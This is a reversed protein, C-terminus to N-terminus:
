KTRRQGPRGARTLFRDAGAKIRKAREVFSLGVGREGLPAEVSVDIHEPLLGWIEELDFAGDGPLLRRFRAEHIMAERGVPAEAAGDCLQLMNILRPEVERLEDLRTGCRTLHLCDMMIRGNLAAAKAV